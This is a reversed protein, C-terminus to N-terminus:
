EHTCDVLYGTLNHQEVKIFIVFSYLVLGLLSLSQFCKMCRANLTNMDIDIDIDMFLFLFM